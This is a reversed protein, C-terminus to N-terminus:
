ENLLFTSFGSFTFTFDIFLYSLDTHRKLRTGRFLTVIINSMNTAQVNVEMM